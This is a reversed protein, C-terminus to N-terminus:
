PAIRTDKLTVLSENTAQIDVTDGSRNCDVTENKISLLFNNNPLVEVKTGMDDNKGTTLAYKGWYDMTRVVNGRHMNVMAWEIPAMSHLTLSSSYTGCYRGKKTPYKEIKYNWDSVKIAETSYKPNRIEFPFELVKKFKLYKEDVDCEDGNSTEAIVVRLKATGSPRYASIAEYVKVLEGSKLLKAKEEPNDTPLNPIRVTESFEKGGEGIVSSTLCYRIADPHDALPKIRLEAEVPSGDEALEKPPSVVEVEIRLDKDSSTVDYNKNSGTKCSVLGIALVWVMTRM